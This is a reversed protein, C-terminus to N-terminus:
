HHSKSTINALVDKTSVITAFEEHLQALASQHIEEATYKNGNFSTTEFSATADHVVSMQFGLNAGMRTTTSICHQTTLGVVLIKRFGLELLKQELVTGIFASNVTKNIHIEDPLPEFGEKFHYGPQSPHLTSGETTSAHQIHIVPLNQARWASLLKLMNEEAHPNNREGWSCENFGQQVDILLLVSDKMIEEM